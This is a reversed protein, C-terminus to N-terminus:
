GGSTEKVILWRGNSKVFEITKRNIVALTDAKYDQIFKAVAREGDFTIRINSLQVAITKKGLIRVRREQEWASRSQKNPLEFAADYSALYATMDRDSWAQAWAQLAQEIEQM